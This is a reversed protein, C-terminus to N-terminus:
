RRAVSLIKTKETTQISTNNDIKIKMGSLWFSWIDDHNRYHHLPGKITVKSTVKSLENCIAVDFQSLIVKRQDETLLQNEVFEELVDELEQGVASARYHPHAAPPM